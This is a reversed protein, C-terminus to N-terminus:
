FLKRRFHKALYRFKVRYTMDSSYYMKGLEAEPVDEPVFEPDRLKQIGEALMPVSAELLMRRTEKFSTASSIDVEKFHLIKGADLDDTLIQLTVGATDEDNMFEWFGYGAGRYKRLDGHHYGIVGRTPANLIEGKLIGVRLHVAVDSKASVTEITADPFRVSFDDAPEVTVTRLDDTSVYESDTIDIHPPNYKFKTKFAGIPGWDEV